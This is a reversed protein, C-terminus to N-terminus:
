GKEKSTFKTKTGVPRELIAKIFTPNEMQKKAERLATM